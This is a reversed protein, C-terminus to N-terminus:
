KQLAGFPASQAGPALARYVPEAFLFDATLRESVSLERERRLRTGDASSYFPDANEQLIEERKRPLTVVGSFLCDAAVTRKRASFIRAVFCGTRAITVRVNKGSRKVLRSPNSIAAHINFSTPPQIGITAPNVFSALM